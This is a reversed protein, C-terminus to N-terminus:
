CEWLCSYALMYSGDAVTQSVCTVVYTGVYTTVHTLWVTTATGYHDQRPAGLVKMPGDAIQHNPSCISSM